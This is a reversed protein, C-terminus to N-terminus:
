ANPPPTNIALSPHCHPALILERFQNIQFELKLHINFLTGPMEAPCLSSALMTPIGGEDGTNELSVLQEAIKDEVTDFIGTLLLKEGSQRSSKVDFLKGDILLEKDQEVWTIKHIDTEITQLCSNELQEEMQIKNIVGALVLWASNVPPLMAAMLLFCATLKKSIM